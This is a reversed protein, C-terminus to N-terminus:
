VNPESSSKKRIKMPRWIVPWKVKNPKRWKFIAICLSAVLLVIWFIFEVLFFLLLGIAEWAALAEVGTVFFGLIFEVTATIIYIIAEFIATIIEM